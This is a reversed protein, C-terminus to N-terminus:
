APRARLRRLLRRGVSLLLYVVGLLLVTTAGPPLNPQYSLALGLSTALVAIGCAYLMMGLLRRAFHGAIAVPLTMLAIVLVVGVVRVLLVVTLATLVLLAIYHLHVRVGRVAAFEEDFCVALFQKYFLYCVVIVTVDLAAVAYLYGRSVLLINGFLIGVVDANYGPTASLFLIGAAMGVVWLAGIVTDERERAYLSVLGITVAALIAVVLAGYLPDLADWGRTVRLYQAAGIGGLVCHAIGGAIYSIRRVVVYSGVVSAAVGALAGALLAMRLFGNEPVALASLFESMITSTAETRNM